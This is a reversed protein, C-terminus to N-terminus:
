SDCTLPLSHFPNPSFSMQFFSMKPKLRRWSEVKASIVNASSHCAFVAFFTPTEGKKQLHNVELNYKDFRDKLPSDACIYM